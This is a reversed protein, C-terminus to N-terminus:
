RFFSLWRRRPVHVADASSVAGVATPEPSKNPQQRWYILVVAVAGGTIALIFDAFPFSDGREVTTHYLMRFSFGVRLLLLVVSGFFRKSRRFCLSGCFVGSFGAFLPGGTTGWGGLLIFVPFSVLFSIVVAAPYRVWDSVQPESTKPTM